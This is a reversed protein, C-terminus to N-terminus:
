DPHRRAAHGHSWRSRCGNAAIKSKYLPEARTDQFRVQVTQTELFKHYTLGRRKCFEAGSLESRKWATMLKPWDQVATDPSENPKM